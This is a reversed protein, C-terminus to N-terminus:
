GLVTIYDQRHCKIQYSNATSFYEVVGKVTITKGQYTEPTVLKNDQDKFVTTRVQVTAGDPAICTLTMAGFNDSDTNSTVSISQVYLNALTVSTGLIAEKYTLKVVEDYEEGDENTKTVEFSVNAVNSIFQAGSIPTYAGDLGVGEGGPLINCNNPNKPNYRDYMQIDTIQYYGGNEYWVVVGVVSVRNGVSLIDLVKGNVNFHLIPMGFRIGTEEYGEVDYYTEELYASDGFDAVILGEVVIKKGEYAATNFRLEKLDVNIPGGYYYDPDQVGSFLILKHEQAQDLAAKAYTGYRNDSVGSGFAHGAQLIEINLNRYETEGPLRYWIWLVYRSGTNDINWKDDNSEIVISGGPESAAKLKAKTFNSAAKGYPEIQGTSEPTNIAIYRAKVYGKTPATAVSFDAANNCNPLESNEVPNFHTTDGDIYLRVTVEQKKTESNFDLKVQSAYDVLKDSSDGSCATLLVPVALVAACLMCVLIKVFKKM